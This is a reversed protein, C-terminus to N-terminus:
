WGVPAPAPAPVPAPAPAPAPSLAVPTEGLATGEAECAACTEGDEDLMGGCNPCRPFDQTLKEAM